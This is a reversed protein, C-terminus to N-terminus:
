RAASGGGGAGPLTEDLIEGGQVPPNDATGSPQPESGRGAGNPATGKATEQAAAILQAQQKERLVLQGLQQLYGRLMRISEADMFGLADEGIYQQLKQLHFEAGELPIGTPLNHNLIQDLAEEALIRKRLAEPSPPKVYRGQDQGVSKVADTAMRFVEEPGVIGMQLMLPNILIGMLTQLSQQQARRSSNQVNAVFEFEFIGELDARTQVERYPNQDSPVFGAIRFEKGDPLLKVNLQHYMSFVDSLMTFFRRLIREPRAEGQSILSQIGGVTRLASSRGVPVRGSQIDGQLTLREEMQQIVTIVNLAFAQGSNKFEFFKMDNNVDALPIGDGPGLRMTEPKINSGARYAWIPSNTLTGNDVAQDIMMKRWDHLGEVLELLSIGNRRGKVPLYSGEALPRRSPSFPYVETLREARMLMEPELLLWWMVDTNRGDKELAFLDFCLLRTLTKHTTDKHTTQEDDQTGELADLQRKEEDDDTRRVTGRLEEVQDRNLLDYTGDRQLRDIEDVTPHDVLIVHTAGGPNSPGPIQLNASRPPTLVDEFAKVLTRPGEFRMVTKRIRLEVEDDDNTFFSWDEESGDKMEARYDWGEEDTARFTAEPFQQKLIGRFHTVPAVNEPIEDFVRIDSIEREERVWTVFSTISPDNVFLEAMEEIVTDGEQEVFFQTDMLSDILDSKEANVGKIARATVVKPRGSLVANYLTDQTRLSVETMDPVAQDSSDSWPFNKGETWQRYKAYRQLRQGRDIDRDEMDKHYFEKVRQVIEDRRKESFNLLPRRSRTRRIEPAPVPATM